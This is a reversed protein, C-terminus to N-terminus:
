VSAKLLAEIRPVRSKPSDLSFGRADGLDERIFTEMAKVAAEVAKDRPVFAAWAIKETATDYEWRGVLRGRDFIRNSQAFAGQKTSGAVPMNDINSVLAYQPKAPVKFKRFAAEHEPLLLYGDGVDVLELGEVAAKAARVGLGAFDQFAAVQM